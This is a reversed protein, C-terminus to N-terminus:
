DAPQTRETRISSQGDPRQPGLRMEHGVGLQIVPPEVLQSPQAREFAVQGGPHKFRAVRDGLEDLLQKGM